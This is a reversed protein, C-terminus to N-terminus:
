SKWSLMIYWCGPLAEGPMMPSSSWRGTYLPLCCGCRRDVVLPKPPYSTASSATLGCSCVRHNGEPPTPSCSSYALNIKVGCSGRRCGELITSCVQFSTSARISCTLSPVFQRELKRGATVNGGHHETGSTPLIKNEFPARGSAENASCEKAWRRSHKIRTLSVQRTCEDHQARSESRECYDIRPSEGSNM